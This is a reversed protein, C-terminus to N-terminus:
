YQSPVLITSLTTGALDVLNLTARRLLTLGNSDEYEVQVFLQLITHSRSSETNFETARIARNQLGKHLLSMVDEKGHVRYESLGRVHVSKHSGRASERVQLPNERKKDQLLDFIKENYIQM